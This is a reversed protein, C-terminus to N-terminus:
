SNLLNSKEKAKLDIDISDYRNKFGKIMLFYKCLLWIKDLNKSNIFDNNINKFNFVNNRKFGDENIIESILNITSENYNVNQINLGQKFQQTYLSKPFYNKFAERLVSKTFGNKLKNSGSLALGFLRVNNDLFPMRVEVSNSMSAKDWKNLFFQFWGCYSMLYTFCLEYPFNELDELDDSIIQNSGDFNGIHLYDTFGFNLDPTAKFSIPDIEREGLGFLRKFKNINQTKGFKNITKFNNAISNYINVSLEPIWQPYGLFEDAGHGDLSVKIGKEKQKKYLEFQIFYEEVVELSSVLGMTKEATMKEFNVIQYNRKFKQSLKVADEKSKMEEYNMIIPNLDLDNEGLKENKEILNMLTFISSSDLGGSLSTGTKVDSNLRLKTSEYLLDFYDNVNERFGSNIKPLNKLPYDWRFIKKELNNLNIKLYRGQTLQNVNKFITKSCNNLTTSNIGLNNNDFEIKNELAYFAKIESSFAFFNNNDFIYCPKYGIGDRCVIIENNKKDLIAFSWEGNFRQFSQVGWEKYANLVVETDSNSYFKYKKQILEERLTKYNYIEGNYIIWYRGDVSMPQSGLNSIDIISLRTHGLLLNKHNIFGSDDPGRHNLLANMKLIKSVDTKSTKFIIGNIGCM